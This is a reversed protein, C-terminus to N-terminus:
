FEAEPVDTLLRFYDALLPDPVRMLKGFMESPPETVGIYNGMSKSMKTKGDTGILLPVTLVLQPPQGAGRQLDRGCLNNFT